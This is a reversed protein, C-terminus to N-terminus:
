LEAGSKRETEIGFLDRLASEVAQASEDFASSKGRLSAAQRSYESISQSDCQATQARGRLHDAVSALRHEIARRAEAELEDVYRFVPEKGNWVRVLQRDTFQRDYDKAVTWPAIDCRELSKTEADWRQVKGADTVYFRRTTEPYGNGPESAPWHIEWWTGPMFQRDDAAPPLQVPKFQPARPVYAPVAALQDLLEVQQPTLVALPTVSPEPRIKPHVAKDPEAYGGRNPPRDGVDTWDIALRDSVRQCIQKFISM